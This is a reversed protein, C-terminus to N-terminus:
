SQKQNQTVGDTKTASAGSQPSPGADMGLDDEFDEEYGKLYHFLNSFFRKIARFM